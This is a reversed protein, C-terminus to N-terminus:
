KNEVYEWHYGGSKRGTKCATSIHSPGHMGLAKAATTMDSYIAGTEICRVSKPKFTYNTYINDTTLYNEKIFQIRETDEAYAWHLNLTRAPKKLASYISSTNIGTARSASSVSNYIIGTEVCIVKKNEVLNELQTQRDIDTLWCWHYGYASLSKGKCVDIILRSSNAGPFSAGAKYVDEYIQQTELCIVPQNNYKRTSSRTERTIGLSIAKFRISQASHKQLLEPIQAGVKPYQQKLLVLDAETFYVPSAKQKKTKIAEKQYYIFHLGGVSTKQGSLVPKIWLGTVEQAEKITNFVQGTEICMVARRRENLGAARRAVLGESNAKSVELNVQNLVDAYEDILDESFLNCMYRVAAANQSRVEPNIAAQFLFLHAKAHDSILLNVLNDKSNDLKQNHLKYWARPLIHHSQTQSAALTTDQNAEVLKCYKTLAECDKFDGTDLLKQKLKQM